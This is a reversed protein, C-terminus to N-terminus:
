SRAPLKSEDSLINRNKDLTKNEEEKWARKV